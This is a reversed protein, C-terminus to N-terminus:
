NQDSTTMGVFSPATAVPFHTEETITSSTLLFYDSQDSYNCQEKAQKIETEEFNRIYLHCVLSCDLNVIDTGKMTVIYKQM